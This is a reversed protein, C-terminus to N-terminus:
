SDEDGISLEEVEVYSFDSASALLIASHEMDLADICDKSDPRVLGEVGSTSLHM